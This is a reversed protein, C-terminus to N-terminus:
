PLLIMGNPGSSSLLAPDVISLSIYDEGDGCMSRPTEPNEIIYLLDSYLRSPGIQMDGPVVPYGTEECLRHLMRMQASEVWESPPPEIICGNIDKTGVMMFQHPGHKEILMGEFKEWLPVDLAQKLLRLEEEEAEVWLRLEEIEQWWNELGWM